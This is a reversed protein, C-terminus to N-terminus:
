HKDKFLTKIQAGNFAGNSIVPEPMGLCKGNAHATRSVTQKFFVLASSVLL